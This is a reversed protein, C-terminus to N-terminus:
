PQKGPRFGRLYTKFGLLVSEWKDLESALRPFSDPHENLSQVLAEWTQKPMSGLLPVISKIISNPDEANANASMILDTFIDRSDMDQIRFIFDLIMIETEDMKAYLKANTIVKNRDAGHEGLLSSLLMGDRSLWYIPDGRKGKEIVDLFNHDFLWKMNSLVNRYNGQGFTEKKEQFPKQMNCTQYANAKGKEALAFLIQDHLKGLLPKGENPKWM